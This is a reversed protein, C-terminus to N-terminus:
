SGGAGPIPLPRDYDIMYITVDVVLPKGLETNVVSIKVEKISKSLHETFTKMLAIMSQNSGGDQAILSASIDPIELKKSTMKWSYTDPVDGGFKDEKEEEITELSKNKYEREIETVKRELLAALQVQIQTKRLRNYTGSWSNTLIFLGASMVILALIVEILTFAKQGHVAFHRRHTV